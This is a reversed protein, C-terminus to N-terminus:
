LMVQVHAGQESYVHTDENFNNKLELVTDYQDGFIERLDQEYQQQIADIRDSLETFREKNLVTVTAGDDEARMEEDREQILSTFVTAFEKKRNLYRQIVDDSEDRLRDALHQRLAEIFDHQMDSWEVEEIEAEIAPARETVRAETPPPPTEQLPAPKAIAEEYVRHERPVGLLEGTSMEQLKGLFYLASSFLTTAVLVNLPRM